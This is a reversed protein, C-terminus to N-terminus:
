GELQLNQILTQKQQLTIGVKRRKIPSHQPTSPSSRLPVKTGAKVKAKPDASIKKSKTPAM